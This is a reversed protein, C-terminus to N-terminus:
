YAGPPLVSARYRGAVDTRLEWTAGTAVAVITVSATPIPMGSGDSVIGQISAGVTQAHLRATSFLSVVILIRAISITRRVASAVFSSERAFTRRTPVIM